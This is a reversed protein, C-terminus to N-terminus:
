AYKCACRAMFPPLAQTEINQRDDLPTAASCGISLSMMIGLTMMM